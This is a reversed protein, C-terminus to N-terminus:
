HTKKDSSLADRFTVATFLLVTSFIVANSTVQLQCIFKPPKWAIRVLVLGKELIISKCSGAHHHATFALVWVAKCRLWWLNAPRSAAAFCAPKSVNWFQARECNHKWCNMLISHGKTQYVVFLEAVWDMHVSVRFSPLHALPIQIPYTQAKYLAADM